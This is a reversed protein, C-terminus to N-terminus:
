SAPLIAGSSDTVTGEIASAFQAAAPSPGLALLLALMGAAAWAKRNTM